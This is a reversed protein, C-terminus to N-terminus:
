YPPTSLNLAKGFFDQILKFSKEGLGIRFLGMVFPFIMGVFVIFTLLDCCNRRVTNTNIILDRGYPDSINNSSAYSIGAWRYFFGKRPDNEHSYCTKNVNSTYGNGDNAFKIANETLDLGSSSRLKVEAEQINKNPMSSHLTFNWPQEQQVIWRDYDEKKVFKGKIRCRDM